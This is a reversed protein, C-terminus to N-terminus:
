SQGHNLSEPMGAFTVEAYSTLSLPIERSM